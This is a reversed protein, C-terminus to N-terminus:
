CPTSSPLRPHCSIGLGLSSPRKPLATDSDPRATLLTHQVPAPDVRAPGPYGTPAARATIRQIGHTPTLAVRDFTTSPNSFKPEVSSASSAPLPNAALQLPQNGEQFKSSRSPTIYGAGHLPFRTM